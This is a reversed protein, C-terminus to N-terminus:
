RHFPEVIGVKVTLLAIQVHGQGVEIIIVALFGNEFPFHLRAIGNQEIKAGHMTRASIELM